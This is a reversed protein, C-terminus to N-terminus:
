WIEEKMGDIIYKKLKDLEEVVARASAQAEQIPMSVDHEQMAVILPTLLEEIQEDRDM